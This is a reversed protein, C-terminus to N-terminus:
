PALRRGCTQGATKHCNACPQQCCARSTGLGLVMRMRAQARPLPAHAQMHAGERGRGVRAMPRILHNCALAMGRADSPRIYLYTHRHPGGALQGLQRLDAEVAERQRAEETTPPIDVIVQLAKVGRVVGGRALVSQVLALATSLVLPTYIKLSTRRDTGTRASHAPEWVVLWQRPEYVVWQPWKSLDPAAAEHGGSTRLSRLRPLQQMERGFDLREMNVPCLWLQAWM